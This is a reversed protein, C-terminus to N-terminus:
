VFNYSPFPRVPQEVQLDVGLPAGVPLPLPYQRMDGIQFPTRHEVDAAAVAVVAPPHAPFPGPHDDPDVRGQDRHQLELHQLRIQVITIVEYLM